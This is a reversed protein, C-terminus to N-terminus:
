PQMSIVSDSRAIVRPPARRATARYQYAEQALKLLEHYVAHKEDIKSLACWLARQNIVTDYEILEGDLKRANGLKGFRKYDSDSLLPKFTSVYKQLVGDIPYKVQARM